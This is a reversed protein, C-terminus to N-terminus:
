LLNDVPGTKRHAEQLDAETQELYRRLVQLTTHGLLRQLSYVDAGNRLSLIAFGRRFAHLTPALVGADKGRRRVIDRLGTHTM